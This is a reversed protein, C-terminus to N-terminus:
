VAHLLHLLFGKYVEDGNTTIAYAWEIFDGLNQYGLHQSLDPFTAPSTVKNAVRVILEPGDFFICIPESYDVIVNIEKEEVNTFTILKDPEQSCIHLTKAPVLPNQDSLLKLREFMFNENGAIFSPLYITM